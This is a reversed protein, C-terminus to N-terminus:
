NRHRSYRESSDHDLYDKVYPISDILVLHRSGTKGNVTAEAYQSKDPAIKFTVDKIRLKLLEHPRCSTDKAMTHFCKMRKSPCYKLFLLDDQATWMDTPKYISKEKRKLHPINELIRPRKTPEINPYHLWKFFRVLPKDTSRRCFMMFKGITKIVSKRYNDSPNVETKLSIIYDM